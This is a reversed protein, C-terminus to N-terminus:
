DDIQQLKNPREPTQWEMQANNGNWTYIHAVILFGNFKM